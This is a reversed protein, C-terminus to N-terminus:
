VEIFIKEWIDLLKPEENEWCLEKSALNCNRRLLALKEGNRRMRTITEIINEVTLDDILEFVNYKENLARYEPFNMQISPVGAQIYDFAKNALSYYYNLGDRELLNLGIDAKVTENKLEIPLYRGYFIVKSGANLKGALERLEHSKDGEGYLRLQVGNLRIVAQIAYELGRGENLMGQYIIIFEKRDENKNSPPLMSAYPVNQIVQFKTRYRKSLIEALAPGVTYAYKIRPVILIALLSWIAKVTKRNQVEPVETFYEHADYVCPVRKVKSAMFCVGLTDLDVACIADCKNILLYLFLRLNYELYFLKGKEFLLKLRECKYESIKLSISNSRLRGVLTIHYGAKSLSSCIRHMRQDFSLDNTVALTIKKSFM